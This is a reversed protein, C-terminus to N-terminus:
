SPLAAKLRWFEVGKLRRLAALRVTHVGRALAANCPARVGYPGAGYNELLAATRSSPAREGDPM